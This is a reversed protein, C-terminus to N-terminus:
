PLDKVQLKFLNSKYLGTRRLNQIEEATRFIQLHALQRDEALSAIEMMRPTRGERIARLGDPLEKTCISNLSTNTLTEADKIPDIENEEGIDEDEDEKGNGEKFTEGEEESEFEFIYEDDEDDDDDDDGFVTDFFNVYSSQNFTEDDSSDNDNELSNDSEGASEPHYIATTALDPSFSVRKNPTHQIFPM